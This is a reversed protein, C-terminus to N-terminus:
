LAAQLTRVWTRLTLARRKTTNQSLGVAVETLFKRGSKPHIGALTKAGAWDLWANGVASGAFAVELVSMQESRELRSLQWGRSTLEDEDDTLGLVRCAHQYYNVQRPTNGLTYSSVQIDTALYEILLLVRDLDDAQPVQASTLTTSLFASLRAHFSDVHSATLVLQRVRSDGLLIEAQVTLNERRIVSLLRWTKRLSEVEKETKASLVSEGTLCQNLSSFFKAVGTQDDTGLTVVLSGVAASVPVLPTTLNAGIADAWKTIASALKEFSVPRRVRPRWVKVTHVSTQTACDVAIGNTEAFSDTAKLYDDEPPLCEENLDSFRIRSVDCTGGRHSTLVRYVLPEEPDLYASRISVRGDYLADLRRDSIPVYLWEDGGNREDSWLALFRTSVANEAVFLRPVDFWDLVDIIRLTGLESDQPIIM